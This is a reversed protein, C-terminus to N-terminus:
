NLLELINRELKILPMEIMCLYDFNLLEIIGNMNVVELKKATENNLLKYESIIKDLLMKSKKFNIYISEFEDNKYYLSSIDTLNERDKKTLHELDFDTLSKDDLEKYEDNSLLEYIVLPYTKDILEELIIKDKLPANEIPIFYIKQTNKMNLFLVKNNLCPIIIQDNCICKYIYEMTNFTIPYYKIETYANLKIGIYGWFQYLKDFVLNNNKKYNFFQPDFFYNNEIINTSTSFSLALKIIDKDSCDM